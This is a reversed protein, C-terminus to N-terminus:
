KKFLHVVDEKGVQLNWVEIGIKKASDTNEM